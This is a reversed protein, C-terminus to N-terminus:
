SKRREICGQNLEKIYVKINVLYLKRKKNEISWEIQELNKQM